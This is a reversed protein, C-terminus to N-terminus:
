ITIGFLFYVKSAQPNFIVSSKIPLEFENSIKVKKSGTVGLNVVGFATGFADAAPTLGLFIDISNGAIELPYGLEIYSSYYTDEHIDKEPDYGWRKDNGYFFVSAFVKLPFSEPFQYAVAGELTHATTKDDYVFYRLDPAAPEGTMSPIYYDTLIVSFNGISYKAYLDIEQYYSNFAIAGWCGIEFAGTNLNFSPQISPSNGYDTGRFVYRSMLDAGMNLAVGGEEEAAILNSVMLLFISLTLIKFNKMKYEM